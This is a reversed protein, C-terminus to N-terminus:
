LNSLKYKCDLCCEACKEKDISLEPLASSKIYDNTIMQLDYCLGEDIYEELYCCYCYQAEAKNRYKEWEQNLNNEGCYWHCVRIIEDDTMESIKKTRYRHVRKEKLFDRSIIALLKEPEM